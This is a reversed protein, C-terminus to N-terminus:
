STSAELFGQPARQTARVNACGPSPVPMDQTPLMTSDLIVHLMWMCKVWRQRHLQAGPV